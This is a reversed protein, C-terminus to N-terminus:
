PKDTQCNSLLVASCSRPLLCLLGSPAASASGAGWAAGAQRGGKWVAGAGAARRAQSPHVGTKALVDAVAAFMVEEFEKRAMAMSIVPPTAMLAPPIYTADDLGSRAM